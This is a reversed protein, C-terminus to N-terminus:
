YQHQLVALIKERMWGRERAARSSELEKHQGSNGYLLARDRGRGLLGEKYAFSTTENSEETYHETQDIKNSNLASFTWVLGLFTLVAFEKNNKKQLGSEREHNAASTYFYM